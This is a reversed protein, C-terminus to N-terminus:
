STDDVLCTEAGMQASAIASAVGSASAGVVLVQYTQAQAWSIIATLFLFIPVLIFAHSPM